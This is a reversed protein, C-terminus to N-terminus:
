IKQYTALQSVSQSSLEMSYFREESALLVKALQCVRWIKHFGFTSWTQLLRGCTKLWITAIWVMRGTEQLDTKINGLRRHRPSRFTTKGILKGLCIGHVVGKGISAVYGVYRMKSREFFIKHLSSIIISKTIHPTDLFNPSHYWFVFLVSSVFLNVKNAKLIIAM